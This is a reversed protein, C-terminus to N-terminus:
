ALKDYVYAAPVLWDRGVRRAGEVTGRGARVRLGDASEGTAEAAQAITLLDSRGYAQGHPDVLVALGYSSMSHETTLIWKDM